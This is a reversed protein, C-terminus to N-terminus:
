IPANLRNECPIKINKQPNAGLVLPFKPNSKDFRWLVPYFVLVNGNLHFRARYFDGGYSYIDPKHTKFFGLSLLDKPSRAFRLDFLIYKPVKPLPVSVFKGDIGIGIMGLEAKVCGSRFKFIGSGKKFECRDPIYEFGLDILDARVGQTIGFHGFFLMKYHFNFEEFDQQSILKETFKM